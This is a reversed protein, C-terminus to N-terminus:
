NGEQLKVLLDVFIKIEDRVRVAGMMPSPPTVGFQTMTLTKTGQFRFNQDSAKRGIADIWCEQIQGNITLRLQAKLNVWQGRSDILRYGPSEIVQLLELRINPYQDANLAKYMDRNMLKNGCDFARVRVELSTASFTSQNPNTTKRLTFTQATFQDECQCSYSAVNTKGDLRLVSGPEIQYVRSALDPLRTTAALLLLTAPFLLLRLMAM